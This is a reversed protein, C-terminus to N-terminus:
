ATGGSLTRADKAAGLALLADVMALEQLVVYACGDAIV